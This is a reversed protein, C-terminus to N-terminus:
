AAAKAPEAGTERRDLFAEISRPDIRWEPRRSGKRRIDRASLECDRILGLVHDTSVPEAGGIMEAAIRTPVWNYRASEQDPTLLARVICWREEGDAGLRHEQVGPLDM